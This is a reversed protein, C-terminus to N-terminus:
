NRDICFHCRESDKFKATDLDSKFVVRKKLIGGVVTKGAGSQENTEPKVVHSGCPKFGSSPSRPLSAIASRLRARARSNLETDFKSNIYLYFIFLAFVVADISESQRQRPEQESSLVNM